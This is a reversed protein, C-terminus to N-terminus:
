KGPAPPPGVLPQVWASEFEGARYGNVKVRSSTVRARVYLEDGRLRYAPSASTQTALVRGVDDSYRHTLRLPDGNAMRLPENRQDFGRRTGIFETQYTVGPETAIELRLTDGERRVDRLLVGSTAYFDGAEMAHIISEPTLHASRVMVWGRGTNSKGVANTHYHHSDDVALGYLPPLDLVGLRWTLAIDWMRDLSAHTADGDNWVSPHGNYVEFFQEGRVRLLEEATIAWGFNPHNIHPFMPQGTRERQALVADVNRQLVDLVNSGGAPPLLDRLNTANLHLPYVLHRDTVESSPVLLFRDPEEFRTRFEALPKLRVQNTGQVVRQEVWDDGFRARYRELVAGGARAETPVIWRQGEAIVNHESFALFHYDNQRYWGAIMEPYDDGDSWLSHTHLNGKWWRADGASTGPIGLLSALLVIPLM